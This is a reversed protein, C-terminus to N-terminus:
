ILPRRSANSFRRARIREIRRYLPPRDAYLATLLPHPSLDEFDLRSATKLASILNEGNGSESAARDARYENQRSQLRMLILSVPIFLLMSFFLLFAEPVPIMTDPGPVPHTLVYHIQTWFALSGVVALLCSGILNRFFEGHKARGIEHAAVGCIEDASLHEFLGRCLVIQNGVPTYFAKVSDAGTEMAATIKGRFDLQASLTELKKRLDEDQLPVPNYILGRVIPLILNLLLSLCLGGLVFPVASPRSLLVATRNDATRFFCLYLLFSGLSALLFMMLSLFAEERRFDAKSKTRLGYKRRLIIEEYYHVPVTIIRMIVCIVAPALIFMWINDPIHWPVLFAACVCLIYLLMDAFACLLRFGSDKKRFSLWRECAEPPYLGAVSAPLPRSCSARVLAFRLARFIMPVSLVLVLAALYPM